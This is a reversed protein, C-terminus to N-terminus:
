TLIRKDRRMNGDRSKLSKKYHVLWQKKAKKM